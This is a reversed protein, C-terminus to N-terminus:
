KKGFNLRYTEPTTGFQKKFASYFTNISFYGVKKSIDSIKEGQLLLEEATAMRLSTRRQLMTQGYQKEFYRNIQRPSIGFEESLSQPTLDETYHSNLKKGLLEPISSFMERNTETNKGNKQLKESELIHMFSFFMMLFVSILYGDHFLDRFTSFFQLQLFLDRLGEDAYIKPESVDRVTDALRGFRIERKYGPHNKKVNFGISMIGKPSSFFTEHLAGPKIITFCNRDLKYIQGESAIQVGNECAYILEYFMHSHTVHKSTGDYATKQEFSEDHIIFQCTIDEVSVTLNRIMEEM